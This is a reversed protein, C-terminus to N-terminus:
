IDEHNRWEGTFDHNPSVYENEIVYNFWRRDAEDDDDELNYWITFMVRPLTNFTYPFSVVSVSTTMDGLRTGPTVYHDFAPVTEETLVIADTPLDGDDIERYVVVTDKITTTFTIENLCIRDYNKYGHPKIYKVYTFDGQM